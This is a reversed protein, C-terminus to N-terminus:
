GRRWRAQADHLVERQVLESKGVRKADDRDHAIFLGQHGRSRHVEELLVVDHEIARVSVVSSQVAANM